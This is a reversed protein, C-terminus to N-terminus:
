NLAPPKLDGILSGPAFQPYELIKLNGHDLTGIKNQILYQNTTENYSVSLHINPPTNLFIGGNQTNSFPYALTTDIASTDSQALINASFFLVFM